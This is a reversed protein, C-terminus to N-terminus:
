NSKFKSPKKIIINNPLSPWRITLFVSEEIIESTHFVKKNWYVFDGQKSLIIEKKLEPFSIKTKGSILISLSKSKKASRISNFKEGKKHIAWKIEIDEDKFFPKNIFHGIFWGRRKNNKLFNKNLNGTIFNFNM